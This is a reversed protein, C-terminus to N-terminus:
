KTRKVLLGEVKQSGLTLIEPGKPTILVTHEFHAALSGDRTKVTWNDPGTKVEPSGLNVMPEIALTMGAKLKISRGTKGFNPVEPLEHLEKGIGHGVLDRVVALGHGEVWNQIALSIDSVRNGPKAKEIGKYLAQETVKLLKKAQPSIEGVPFTIAADAHYGSFQAGLDIGIIDGEKLTRESPIGHVVEDNIAVCISNPFGRYGKFSPKGGEKTIVSEAIRDLEITSVGPAIAKGLEALTKAVIKGAKRM